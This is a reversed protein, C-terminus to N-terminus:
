YSSARVMYQPSQYVFGTSHFIIADMVASTLGYDNMTEEAENISIHGLDLQKYLTDVTSGMRLRAKEMAEYINM